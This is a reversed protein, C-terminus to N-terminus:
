GPPSSSDLTLFKDKVLRRIFQGIRDYLPDLPEDFNEAMQRGIEEITTRGDCRTWVYSGFADLKVRIDPKRLRPMLWKRAFRGRFKPVMLVVRHEENQNWELNRQPRLELLNMAGKRMKAVERNSGVVADM